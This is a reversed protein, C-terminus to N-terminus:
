TGTTDALDELLLKILATCERTLVRIQATNQAVTPAARAIYINNVAIAQRAKTLLDQRNFVLANTINNAATTAAVEAATINERVTTGDEYYFERYDPWFTRAGVVKSMFEVGIMM